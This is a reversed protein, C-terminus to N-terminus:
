AARRLSAVAAAPSEAFRCGLAALWTAHMSRNKHYDNAVLTVDRGAHLGAIAFHLRDTVIRRHAAALALYDAPTGCLRVPDRALWPRRGRRERDRRLFIGLGHRPPGAAPWALGLALDPALIGDPRLRLSERERVYVRAFPRDEPSTFSQPLIALPLGTALAESRVDFNNRYRTGMNGGGGFVLLDFSGRAEPRWAAWRIGFEALLQTMALEILDDGVNGLPRVYGVRSGRLPEFVHAFADAPLLRRPAAPRGVAAPRAAPMRALLRRVAAATGPPLGRGLADRYFGALEPEPPPLADLAAALDTPRPFVGFRGLAGLGDLAVMTRLCKECTGCNFASGVNHWCVRLHKWALPEAALRALKDFRLVDPWAYTIRLGASGYLPDVEAGSSIEAAAHGLGDSSTLLHGIEDRLLHGLAAMAGAFSRLWPAARVLPHRRLNTRIVVARTGMEAAVARVSREVARCRARERLKVDYGLAHVLTDIRRSGALLTHFSDVGGSFCVATGPAAPSDSVVPLAFAGAAAPYWRDRFTETLTALRAAWEACVPSEVRLLRGAHLAPVLM